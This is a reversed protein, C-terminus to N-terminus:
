KYKWVYGYAHKTKGKLNQIINTRNKFNNIRTAEAISNYERILEGNITYQLVPKVNKDKIPDYVFSSKKNRIEKKHAYEWVFGGATKRKGRAVASIKSVSIGTKNSADTMTPYEAIFNRDTDYQKIAQARGNNAGLHSERYEPAQWMNKVLESQKAKYQATGNAKKCVESQRFRFEESRKAQISKAIFVKGENTQLFNKIRESLIKKQEPHTDYYHKIGQSLKLKTQSSRKTGQPNPPMHGGSQINILPSGKKRYYEIMEKEFDFAEKESLHDKILKSDCDNSAIINVLKENDRKRSRYRYKCGKGVYFVNGSNKYYWVYVYYKPTEDFQM